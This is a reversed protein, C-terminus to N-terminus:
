NVVSLIAARLETLNDYERPYSLSYVAPNTFAIRSASSFQRAVSEMDGADLLFSRKIMAMIADAGEVPEIKIRNPSATEIPDNLLFIASVGIEPPSGDQDHLILRKKDSYHSVTTLDYRDPFVTDASDQWLRAGNYAATGLSYGDKEELLLGDDTVLRAGNQHFSSAITSKGWGSKGLFALGTGDSLIIASAHLILDGQHGMFRPMIQDLLLHRITEVPTGPSPHCEITSHNFDLMFDAMGSFRLLYQGNYRAIAMVVETKADDRYWYDFWHIKDSISFPLEVLKFIIAAALTGTEPIQPLEPFHLKSDIAANFIRYM